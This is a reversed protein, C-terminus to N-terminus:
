ERRIEEQSAREEITRDLRKGLLMGVRLSLAFVGVAVFLLAAAAAAMEM